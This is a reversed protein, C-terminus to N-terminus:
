SVVYHTEKWIRQGLITFQPDLGKQESPFPFVIKPIPRLTRLIPQFNRFFESLHV